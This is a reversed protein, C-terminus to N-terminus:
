DRDRGARKPECVGGGDMQAEAMERQKAKTRLILSYHAAEAYREEKHREIAVGGLALFLMFLVVLTRVAADHVKEADHWWRGRPDVPLTLTPERYPM